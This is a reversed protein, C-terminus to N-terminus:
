RRWDMVALVLCIGALFNRATKVNRTAIGRSDKLRCFVREIINRSRYALPDFPPQGLRRPRVGIVAESGQAALLARLDNTDYAKDAVLCRMPKAAALLVRGGVV